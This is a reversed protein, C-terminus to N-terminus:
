FTQVVKKGDSLIAGVSELKVSKNQKIEVLSDNTLLVGLTYSDTNGVAVSQNKKAEDQKETLMQGDLTTEVESKPAIKVETAQPKVISM